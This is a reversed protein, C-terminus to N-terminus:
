VIRYEGLKEGRATLVHVACALCPDFSRVTRVVEFPNAPDKVPAGILAQEIPGPTGAADRPGANWTTPVVLQYRGIKGDQIQIWHGLAGRPADSLGAGEGTDPIKLEVAAPEGPVLQELWKTMAACAWRSELARALHRGLVSPLKDAGIGAAALAADVDAKVTGNGAAYAVMARALPGVEAPSGDYRPAKIWSYAGDKEPLPETVGQSPHAAGAEDYRSHRVQEGIAAADVAQLKGDEGLLGSGILRDRELCGAAGDDQNFVGYSLFRRCGAGIEFHDGYRGAVLVVAPIYVDEVFATVDALKGAFSAVKDATVECTVGGPVIGINHPMKGGFITLMEHTTRRIHLAKLYGHALAVNEAKSHRYDGEYRPFFPGLEGRAIFARVSRLESDDGAYDALATVDVYDLAALTFFHLIHSQLFNSGLILNRVLRGNAPVREAVGLAEDLCMASATAHATPCVGCVRQTLRCADLPHRGPLIREFGRFLTGCCRADQVRGGDVVAEVRMHGEIRTIPDLIIAQGKRSQVQTDSGHM